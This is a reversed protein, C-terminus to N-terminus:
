THLLTAVSNQKNVCIVQYGNPESETVWMADSHMYSAIVITIGHMCTYTYTTTHIHISDVYIDAVIGYM